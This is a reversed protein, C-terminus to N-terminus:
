FNSFILILVKIIGFSALIILYNKGNISTILLACIIGIEIDNLKLENM